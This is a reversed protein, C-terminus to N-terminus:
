RSLEEEEIADIKKVISCARLVATKLQNKLSSNKEANSFYKDDYDAKKRQNKLRELELGVTSWLRNAGGIEKFQKIVFSHSGKDNVDITIGIKILYAQARHFAGYYARSIGCRDKLEDDEDGSMSNLLSEAFDVYRNWNFRIHGATMEAGCRHM